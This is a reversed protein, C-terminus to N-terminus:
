PYFVRECTGIDRLGSRPFSDKASKVGRGGSGCRFFRTLWSNLCTDIRHRRRQALRCGPRLYPSAPAVDALCQRDEHIVAQIGMRECFGDVLVM